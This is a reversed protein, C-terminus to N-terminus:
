NNKIKPSLTKPVQLAQINQFDVANLPPTTTKPIPTAVVTDIYTHTHATIATLTADLVGKLTQGLVSSESSTAGGLLEIEVAKIKIKGTNNIFISALPHYIFVEKNSLSSDVGICIGNPYYTYKTDPYASSSGLSAKVNTEFLNHPHLNSFHIDCLYYPHRLFEDIDEFWVWVYSDEEPIFSSGHTGSGGTALSSQYAWPLELDSIDYHLHEIRIQVRGKKKTDNNNVVKAPYFGQM